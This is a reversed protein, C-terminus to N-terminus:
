DGHIEGDIGYLKHTQSAGLPQFLVKWVVQVYGQGRIM